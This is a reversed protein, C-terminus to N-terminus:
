RDDPNFEQIGYANVEDLIQKGAVYVHEGVHLASTDFGPPVIVTSTGDDTDRDGDNHSVIFQDGQISSIVGRYVGQAQHSDHLGEYLSGIVPLEDRDASSLLMAHLPTFNLAIGAVVVTALAFLFIELM